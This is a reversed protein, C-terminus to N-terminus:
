ARVLPSFGSSTSADSPMLASLSAARNGGSTTTASSIVDLAPANATVLSRLPAVSGKGPRTTTNRSRTCSAQSAAHDPASAHNTFGTFGKSTASVIAPNKAPPSLSATHLDLEDMVLAPSLDQDLLD